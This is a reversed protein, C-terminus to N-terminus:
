ADKFVFVSGRVPLSVQKNTILKARWYFSSNTHWSDVTFGETERYLRAWKVSKCVLKLGVLLECNFIKLSVITALSVLMLQWWIILPMSGYFSINHGFDFVLFINANLCWGFSHAESFKFSSEPIALIRVWAHVRISSSVKEAQLLACIVAGSFGRHENELLMYICSWLESCVVLVACIGKLAACSTNWYVLLLKPSIM